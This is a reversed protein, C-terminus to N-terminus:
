LWRQLAGNLRNKVQDHSLFQSAAADAMMQAYFHKALEAQHRLM